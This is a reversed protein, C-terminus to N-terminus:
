RQCLSQLYQMMMWIRGDENRKLSSHFHLLNNEHSFIFAFKSLLQDFNVMDQLSYKDDDAFYRVRQQQEHTEVRKKKRSNSKDETESKQSLYRMNGKNDTTTLLVVNDSKNDAAHKRLERAKELRKKMQAVLEHRGMIEAKVIKAGLLNMQEETLMEDSDNQVPQEKKPSPSKRVTRDEVERTVKNFDPKKWNKSSRSNSSYSSRSSSYHDDDNESPKKFSPKSDRSNRNFSYDDDKSKRMSSRAHDRDDKYRERSRRRERSRSRSRDRKYSKSDYNNRRNSSRESQNEADQIMKKIKDLSQFLLINLLCFM